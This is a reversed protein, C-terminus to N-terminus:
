ALFKIGSRHDKSAGTVSSLVNVSETEYLYALYAFILAEKFELLPAEAVTIEFDGCSEIAQILTTNLAGGGSVLVQRLWHAKLNQAIQWGCHRNLTAIAIEPGIDFSEILPFVKLDLWERGLSKPAAQHYYDLENLAKFLDEHVAYTAAITGDHDYELGLERCYHNMPLNCPAIDWAIRSGAQELSINAFGGLNLCAQYEPFLDRDGIPVLPAGQGGLALDAVRFDCVVPISTLKALVPRNGIQYSIGKEPEHFWTHGHSGILDIDSKHLGHNAIFDNIREAIYRAFDEDLQQLDRASYNQFQLKNKWVSNYPITEAALIKFELKPSTRLEVLCIDLGDLSTGSMIGILKWLAKNNLNEVM